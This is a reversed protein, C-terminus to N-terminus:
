AHEKRSTIPPCTAFRSLRPVGFRANRAILKTPLRPSREDLDRHCNRFPFEDKNDPAYSVTVPAFPLLPRGSNDVSRVPVRSRFISKRPLLFSPYSRSRNVLPGEVRPYPGVGVNPASGSCALRGALVQRFDFRLPPSPDNIGNMENIENIGNIGNIGNIEETLHYDPTSMPRDCSHKRLYLLLNRKVTTDSHTSSNVLTKTVIKINIVGRTWSERVTEGGVRGRRIARRASVRRRSVGSGDVRKGERDRNRERETGNRKM